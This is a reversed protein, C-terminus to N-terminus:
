CYDAMMSADWREQYRTQMTKMEQHFREGQEDSM